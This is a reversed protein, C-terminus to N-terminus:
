RENRAEQYKDYAENEAARKLEGVIDIPTKNNNNIVKNAVENNLDHDSILRQLEGVTGEAERILSAPGSINANTKRALYNIISEVGNIRSQKQNEM